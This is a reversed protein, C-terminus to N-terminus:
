NVDGIKLYSDLMKLHEEQKKEAAKKVALNIAKPLSDSPLEEVIQPRVQKKYGSLLTTQLNDRHKNYYKQFALDNVRGEDSAKSATIMALLAGFAKRSDDLRYNVIGETHSHTIQKLIKRVVTTNVHRRSGAWYGFWGDLYVKNLIGTFWESYAIFSPFELERELQDYLNGYAFVVGRMGIDQILLDPISANKAHVIKELIQKEVLDVNTNLVSNHRSSGFRFKTFAHRAEQSQENFRAEIERLSKGYSKIPIFEQLLYAIGPLVNKNFLERVLKVSAPKLGLKSQFDSKLDAHIATLEVGLLHEQDPSWNKGLIYHEFWDRIESISKITGPSSDTRSTSTSGRWDFILLPLISEDVEVACDNAHFHNVFEQACIENILSDNLLIQRTVSPEKAETNIFVFTRRIIDLTRQDKTKEQDLSRVGFIVVPIRWSEFDIRERGIQDQYIQKLASLRHQGDIAVLKAETDTWEVVGNHRHADLYRYQYFGDNEICTYNHGDIQDEYPEMLPIPGTFTPHDAKTPIFTLTLPNFFKISETDLLYPVLSKSVREEDVDRQFLDRVEWKESGEIESVLDIKVLQQPSIATQIFFIQAGGGQGFEGFVGSFSQNYKPGVPTIIPM